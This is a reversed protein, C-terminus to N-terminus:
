AAASLLLPICFASHWHDYNAIITRKSGHNTQWNRYNSSGFQKRM